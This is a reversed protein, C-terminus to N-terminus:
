AGTAAQFIEPRLRVVDHQLLKELIETVIIPNGTGRVFCKEKYRAPLNKSVTMSFGLGPMPFKHVHFNGKREGIPAYTLRGIEKGERIAIWLTCHKPFDSVGLLYTRFSEEFLGLNVSFSGDRNWPHIAARWFMSAAFYSLASINIEPIQLAYYVRTTSKFSYLNPARAALISALPFRGDARLCHGLVWNEGCISFRQECKRCLLPAKLQMSTQFETNRTLLWPNPNKAKDDRLIRYIGAPVGHSWQLDSGELLCLRCTGIM